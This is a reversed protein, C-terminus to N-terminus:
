ECYRDGLMLYESPPIWRLDLNERMRLVDRLIPLWTEDAAKVDMWAAMFAAEQLVALDEAARAHVVSYWNQLDHLDGAVLRNRSAELGDSLAGGVDVCNSFLTCGTERALRLAAEFGEGSSAWERMNVDTGGDM